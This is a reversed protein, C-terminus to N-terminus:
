RVTRGADVVAADNDIHLQPLVAHLVRQESICNIAIWAIAVIEVSEIHNSSPELKVRHSLRVHLGLLLRM